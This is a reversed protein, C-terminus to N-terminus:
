GKMILLTAKNPLRWGNCCFQVKGLEVESSMAKCEFQADEAMVVYNPDANMAMCKLQATKQM